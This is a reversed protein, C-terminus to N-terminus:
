AGGEAQPTTAGPDRRRELVAAFFGDTGHIDPRLKLYPGPMALAGARGALAVGNVTVGHVYINGGDTPAVRLQDIQTLGTLEVVFTQTHTFHVGQPDVYGSDLPKLAVTGREVGNVWVGITPAKGGAIAGTVDVTVTTALSDALSHAHSAEPDYLFLQDAGASGALTSDGSGGGIVTEGGFWATVVTEALKGDINYNQEYYDGLRGPDNNILWLGQLWAPPDVAWTEFFAQWWDAQEAQDTGRVGAGIFGDSTAIRDSAGDFSPLGTETFVVPKGVHAAMRNLFDVYDQQRGFVEHDRWGAKLEEVTPDTNTTLSPFVDFGAFDLRDWFGVQTIENVPADVAVPALAAYTLQGDYVDRVADIIDNWYATYEPKTAAVMENGITLVDAGQAQALKAWELIHSKYAAFFAKPNQIKLDPNVLNIWSASNYQDFAPDHAVLQPKLVVSLGEAKAAAVARAVDALSATQNQGNEIVEGIAGTKLDTLSVNGFVVHTAGNQAAREILEVVQSDAYGGASYTSLSIGQVNFSQPM